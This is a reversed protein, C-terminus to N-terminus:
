NPSELKLSAKCSSENCVAESFVFDASLAGFSADSFSPHAAFKLGWVRVQFGLGQFGVIDPSLLTKPSVLSYSCHPLGLVRNLDTLGRGLRFPERVEWLVWGAGLLQCLGRLNSAKTNLTM